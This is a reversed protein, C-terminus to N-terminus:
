TTGVVEDINVANVGNVRNTTLIKAKDLAYELRKQQNIKEKLQPNKKQLRNMTSQKIKNRYEADKNYMERKKQSQKARYEPDLSKIKARERMQIIKRQKYEEDNDYRQKSREKAKQRLIVANEKYYNQHYLYINETKKISKNLETSDVNNNIYSVMM